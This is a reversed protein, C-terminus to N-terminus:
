SLKDECVECTVNSVDDTYLVDAAKQVDRECATLPGSFDERYHVADEDGASLMTKAPKVFPPMGTEAPVMADMAEVWTKVFRAAAEPTTITGSNVRSTLAFELAEVADRKAKLINVIEADV